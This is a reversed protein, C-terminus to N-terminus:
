TRAPRARARPLGSCWSPPPPCRRHRDPRGRARRARPSCTGHHGAAAGGGGGEGAAPRPIGTRGETTREPLLARRPRRRRGRAALQPRQPPSAPAWAGPQPAGVVAEGDAERPAPVPLISAAEGAPLVLASLRKGSCARTQCSWGARSSCASSEACTPKEERGPGARGRRPERPEAGGAARAPSLGRCPSQRATARPPSPLSPFPPASGGAGRPEHARRGAEQWLVHACPPCRGPAGDLAPPSRPTGAHTSAPLCAPRIAGAPPKQGGLELGARPAQLHTVRDQNM